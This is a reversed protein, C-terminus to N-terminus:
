FTGEDFSVSENRQRLGLLEQDIMKAFERAQQQDGLVPGTFNFTNSGGGVGGGSDPDFDDPLPIVAEDRGGEGIIANTGGSSATVIGGEALKIGSVQAAQAAFSAGVAAAAAFNFPPPFAALAKSVGQPAAIAIQTLAAAKGVTALTKNSSNQMGSIRSLSSARASEKAKDLADQAAARNKSGKLEIGLMKAQQKQAETVENTRAKTKILALNLQAQEEKELEEQRKIEEQEAQIADIEALEENLLNKRDKIITGMEDMGMSAMEKARKFEGQTLLTISEISAALGTGILEGLGAITNKLFVFTQAVFKAVSALNSLFSSSNQAEEGLTNLNKAALGVFPAFAKGVLELVDGMTNKLQTLAGLGKTAAEAQGGFKGGLSETVAALKESASLSTDIEVGYRSLANTSSGVTKGVLDAATKLDVKMASAFDLTAKLLDETVEEQGLYAQLQGQASIINEDGFTTVKQLSSALEQYKKSLQPTFIGQQVLSQNMSNIALEQEKYAALSATLGAILAAGAVKAAGAVSGLGNKIAGLTKSGTEKIKILLTAEQKAM